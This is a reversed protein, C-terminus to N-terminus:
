RRFAGLSCRLCCSLCFLLFSRIIRFLLGICGLGSRLTCFHLAFCSLHRRLALLLLRLSSSHALNSIFGLGLFRSLLDNPAFCSLCLSSSGLLGSVRLCRLLRCLRFRGSNGFCSLLRSGLLRFCSFCSCLTRLHGGLGLSVRSRLFRFFIGLTCLHLALCGSITCLGLCFGLGIGGGFFRLRILQRILARFCSCFGFSFRRRLFFRLIRLTGIGLALRTFFRRFDLSIARLSSELLLHCRFRCGLRCSILCRRALSCICSSNSLMLGCSRGLCGLGGSSALSSGSLSRLLALSSSLLLRSLIRLAFRSCRLGQSIPLGQRGLLCGLGGSSAM